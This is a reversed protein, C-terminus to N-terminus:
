VAALWAQYWRWVALMEESRDGPVCSPDLSEIGALDLDDDLHSQCFRRTRRTPHERRPHLVPRHAPDPIQGCRPLLGLQPPPLTSQQANLRQARRDNVWSLTAIRGRPRTVSRSRALTASAIAAPFRATDSTAPSYPTDHGVACLASMAAAARHSGSGVGVLRNPISSVRNRDTRQIRSPTV